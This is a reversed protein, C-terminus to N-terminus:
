AARFASCVIRGYFEGLDDPTWDNEPDLLSRAAAEVASAFLEILVPLKRDLDETQWWAQMAPAMWKAASAALSKRAAAIM